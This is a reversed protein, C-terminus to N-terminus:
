ASSPMRSTSLDRPDSIHILSLTLFFYLPAHEPSSTLAQWTYGLNRQPTLHQYALLDSRNLIDQQELDRWVEPISYGSVRVATAVEDVWFVKQDINAFRFFIGLSLIAIALLTLLLKGSNQNQLSSM